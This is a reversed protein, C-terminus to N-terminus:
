AGAAGAPRRVLGLTTTTAPPVTGSVSPAASPAASRQQVTPPTQGGLDSGAAVRASPLPPATVPVVSNVVTTPAITTPATTTSADNPFIGPATVPTGAFTEVYDWPNPLDDATVYVLGAGRQRALEEIERHRNTPVAYILHWFKNRAYNTPTVATSSLYFPLSNEFSVIIDGIDIMCTQPLGGPNMILIGGNEHVTAAIAEYYSTTSCGWPTQDLFISKVGYWDMYRGIDAQVDLLPRAAYSTDVYGVIGPNTLGITNLRTVWMPDLATGPGSDPNMVAYTIGGAQLKIKAWNADDSFYAPVARSTVLPVGSTVGLPSSHGISAIGLGGLSLAFSALAARQLRRHLSRATRRTRQKKLSPVVPNTPTEPRLETKSEDSQV